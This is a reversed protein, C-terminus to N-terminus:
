GRMYDNILYDTIKKSSDVCQLYEKEILMKRNSLYVDKGLLLSFINKEVDEWTNAIYMYEAMNQYVENFVIGKDCYIIPRGTLFFTGIITSFDSVLIDTKDLVENIPSIVDMEINRLALEILFREKEAETMLGKKILEDFMLPHPRFIIKIDKPIKECMLVFRNKYELFNSGGMKEDYSWRPTWTITKISDRLPMKLYRELAPYGLYEIHRNRKDCAKKYKKYLLNQMYKSDMFCIYTYNFFENEINGDNFVDAATFGYPVYCCRAHKMVNKCRIEKPLYGDYPRPYFVYDLQLEELNLVEGKEDLVKIAEPYKTVFYNNKYVDAINSNERGIEPVVLLITEINNRCKMENYIDVQKDWIGPVQVIFGVRIIQKRPNKKLSKMHKQAINKRCWKFFKSKNNWVFIIGKWKNITKNIILKMRIERIM